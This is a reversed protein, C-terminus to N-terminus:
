EERTEEPNETLRIVATMAVIFILISVWIAFEGISAKM